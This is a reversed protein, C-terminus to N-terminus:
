CSKACSRKRLRLFGIRKEIQEDLLEDLFLKETPLNEKSLTPTIVLHPACKNKLFERFFNNTGQALTM